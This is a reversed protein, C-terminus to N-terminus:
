RVGADVGKWPGITEPQVATGAKTCVPAQAKWQGITTPKVM